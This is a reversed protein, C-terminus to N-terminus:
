SDPTCGNRSPWMVRQSKNPIVGAAYASRMLPALSGPQHRTAGLTSAAAGQHEGILFGGPDVGAFCGADARGPNWGEAAAWDVALPIEEPRVARIRFGDDSM